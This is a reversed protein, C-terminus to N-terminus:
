GRVHRARRRACACSGVALLGLLMASPEPVAAGDIATVAASIPLYLLGDDKAIALLKGGGAGDFHFKAVGEYTQDNGNFSINAYNVGVAAGYVFTGGILYRGYSGWNSAGIPNDTGSTFGHGSSVGLGRYWTKGAGGASDFQGLGGSYNLSFVDGVVYGTWGPYLTVDIGAWAATGSVCVGASVYSALRRSANTKLSKNRHQIKKM